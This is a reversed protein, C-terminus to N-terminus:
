NDYKVGGEVQKSIQTVKDGINGIAVSPKYDYFICYGLFVIVALKLLTKM